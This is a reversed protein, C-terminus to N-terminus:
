EERPGYDAAPECAARHAAGIPMLDATQKDPLRQERSGLRCGPKYSPIISWAAAPHAGRYDGPHSDQLHTRRRTTGEGQRPVTPEASRSGM